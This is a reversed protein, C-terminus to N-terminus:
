IINIKLLSQICTSEGINGYCKSEYNCAICCGLNNSPYCFNDFYSYGPCASALGMEALLFLWLNCNNINNNITIIKITLITIILIIIIFFHLM